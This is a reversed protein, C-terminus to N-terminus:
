ELVEFDSLHFTNSADASPGTQPLPARCAAFYYGIAVIAFVLISAGGLVKANVLISADANKEEPARLYKQSLYSMQSRAEKGEQETSMSRNPIPNINAVLRFIKGMGSNYGKQKRDLCMQGYGFTSDQKVSAGLPKMKIADAWDARDTFFMGVIPYGHDSYTAGDLLTKGNVSKCSLEPASEKLSEMRGSFPDTYSQELKGPHACPDGLVLVNLQQSADAMTVTKTDVSIFDVADCICPWCCHHTVGEMTDGTVTPLSARYETRPDDPIPSGSVPCFGKFVQKLTHKNLSKARDLVYTAWKHSAANRNGSPFIEYFAKPLDQPGTLEGAAVLAGVLVTWISLVAFPM